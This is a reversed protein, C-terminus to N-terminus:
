VEALPREDQPVWFGFVDEEGHDLALRGHEVDRKQQQCDDGSDDCRLGDDTTDERDDILASGGTQHWQELDIVRRTVNLGLDVDTRDVPGQHYRDDEHHEEELLGTVQRCGVAHRHGTGHGDSCNHHDHYEGFGRLFPLNRDHHDDCQDIDDIEGRGKGLEGM